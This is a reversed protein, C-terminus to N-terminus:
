LNMFNKFDTKYCFTDNKKFADTGKLVEVVNLADSKVKLELTREKTRLKLAKCKLVESVGQFNM